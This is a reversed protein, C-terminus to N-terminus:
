PLEARARELLPGRENQLPDEIVEDVLLRLLRGM